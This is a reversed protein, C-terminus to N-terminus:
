HSRTVHFEVKFRVEIELKLRNFGHAVKKAALFDTPGLEGDCPVWCLRLCPKREGLIIETDSVSQGKEIFFDEFIQFCDLKSVTHRGRLM